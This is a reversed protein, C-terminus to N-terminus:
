QGDSVTMFERLITEVIPLRTYGQEWNLHKGEPLLMFAAHLHRALTQTYVFPVEDDDMASVVVARALKPLVKAYDIPTKTFDDLAPITSLPEDFGSVLILNVDHLDHQEVFRVTQICGLSHGVITFGDSRQIQEDCAVDWAQPTPHFPDPLNLVKVDLGLATGVDQKLWPFWNAQPNSEFGHVVYVDAM